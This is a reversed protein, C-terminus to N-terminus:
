CTYVRFLFLFLVPDRSWSVIVKFTQTTVDDGVQFFNRGSIQCAILFQVICSTLEPHSHIRRPYWMMGLKFPFKTGFNTSSILLQYLQEVLLPYWRKHKWIFELGHSSNRYVRVTPICSRKHVKVKQDM